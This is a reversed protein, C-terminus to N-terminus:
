PVHDDKQARLVLVNELFVRPRGLGRQLRREMVWDCAGPHEPVGLEARTSRAFYHGVETTLFRRHTPDQYAAACVLGTSEDCPAPWSLTFVAGSKAVRYAEDMFRVLLDLVLGEVCEEPSVRTYCQVDAAPLHEIFHSSRLEVVSDDDFPWPLGTALNWALVREGGCLDVGQFGEPPNPGSGLDLRLTVAAGKAPSGSLSPAVAGRPM